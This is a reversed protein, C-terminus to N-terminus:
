SVVEAILSAANRKFGVPAPPFEATIALSETWKVDQFAAKVAQRAKESAILILLNSGTAEHNDRIFESVDTLADILHDDEIMGRPTQRRAKRVDANSKISPTWRNVRSVIDRLKLLGDCVRDLQCVRGQQILLAFTLHHEVYDVRVADWVEFTDRLAQCWRAEPEPLLLEIVRDTWGRLILEDRTVYEGIRVIGRRIKWFEIRARQIQEPIVPVYGLEWVQVDYGNLMASIDDEHEARWNALVDALEKSTM